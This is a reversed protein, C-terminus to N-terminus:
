PRSDPYIGAALMLQLCSFSTSLLSRHKAPADGETMCTTAQTMAFTFGFRKTQNNLVERNVVSFM